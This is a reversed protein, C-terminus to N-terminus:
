VDSTANENVPQMKIKKRHLNNINQKFTNCKLNYLKPVKDRFLNNIM